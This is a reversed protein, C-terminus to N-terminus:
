SEITSRMLESSSHHRMVDSRSPLPDKARHHWYAARSLTGGFERFNLSNISAAKARALLGTLVDGDSRLKGLTFTANDPDRTAQLVAFNYTRIADEIEKLSYTRYTQYNM